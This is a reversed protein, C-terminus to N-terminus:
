SISTTLISFNPLIQNPSLKLTSLSCCNSKSKGFRTLVDGIITSVWTAATVAVDLLKLISALEWSTPFIEMTGPGLLSTNGTSLVNDAGTFTLEACTVM